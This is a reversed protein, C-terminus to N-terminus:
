VRIATAVGRQEPASPKMQVFVIGGGEEGGMRLNLPPGVIRYVTRMREVKM